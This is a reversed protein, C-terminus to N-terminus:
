HRQANKTRWKLDLAETDVFAIWRTGTWIQLGITSKPEKCTTVYVILGKDAASLSSASPATAM